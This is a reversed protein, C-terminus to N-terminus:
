LLTKSLSDNGKIVYLSAVPVASVCDFEFISFFVVTDHSEFVLEFVQRFWIEAKLNVRRILALIDGGGDCDGIACTNGLRLQTPHASRAFGLCCTVRPCPINTTDYSHHPRKIICGDAMGEVDNVAVSLGLCLFFSALPSKFFIFSIEGPQM